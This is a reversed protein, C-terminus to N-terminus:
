SEDLEYQLKVLMCTAMLREEQANMWKVMDEVTYFPKTDFQEIECIIVQFDKLKYIILFRQIGGDFHLCHPIFNSGNISLMEILSHVTDNWGGREGKISSEITYGNSHDCTNIYAAHIDEITLKSM